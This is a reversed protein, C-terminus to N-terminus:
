VQRGYIMVTEQIQFGLSEWLKILGRRKVHTRITKCNNLKAFHLFDDVADIMGYGAGLVLVLENEGNFEEVRLVLKIDFDIGSLCFAVSDGSEIEDKILQM